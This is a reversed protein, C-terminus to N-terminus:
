DDSNNTGLNERIAIEQVLKSLKLELTSVRIDLLFSRMILLFIIVLYVFNAASLIGILNAFYVGISPFVGLIMLITAFVIWFFADMLKLQSKKLKRSIFIFTMISTVFLLVKLYISM